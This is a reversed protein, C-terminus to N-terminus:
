VRVVDTPHVCQFRMEASANRYSRVCVSSGRAGIDVAILADATAVLDPERAYWRDSECRQVCGTVCTTMDTKVVCIAARKQGAIVDEADTGHQNIRRFAIHAVIEVREVAHARQRIQRDQKTPM